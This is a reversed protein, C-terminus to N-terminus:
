IHRREVERVLALVPSVENELTEDRELQDRHDAEREQEHRHEEDEPRRDLMEDGRM